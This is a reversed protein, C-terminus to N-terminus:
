PLFAFRIFHRALSREKQKGNVNRCEQVAALQKASNKRVNNLKVLMWQGEALSRQSQLKYVNKANNINRTKKTTHAMSEFENRQRKRFKQVGVISHQKM